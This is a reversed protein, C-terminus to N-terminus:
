IGAIFLMEPIKHKRRHFMDVYFNARKILIRIDWGFMCINLMTSSKLRHHQNQVYKKDWKRVYREILSNRLRNNLLWCDYRMSECYKEYIQRSFLMDFSKKVQFSLPDFHYM